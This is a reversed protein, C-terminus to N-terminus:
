RQKFATSSRPCHLSPQVALGSFMASEVLVATAAVVDVIIVVVVVVDVAAVAEDEAVFGFNTSGDCCM